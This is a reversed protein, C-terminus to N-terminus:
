SQIIAVGYPSLSLEGHRVTVGTLLDKGARVQRIQQTATSHNLLVLFKRRGASRAIMEVEAGAEAIPSLSLEGTLYRLLTAITDAQCYGGVYIVWGKGASRRTIAPAVGLLPDGDEWHALPQAGRLRLREVFNSMALTQGNALRAQRTEKERLTTWDEVEVGALKCFLGPLPMEVIHCNRDKLGSQAGLVLTGGAQVFKQVTAVLHKDVLKLHPLILLRYGRLDSDPWVMDASLHMRGAEATWRHSEFRGDGTYTNIRRENIDNDYDRMVAIARDVPADFLARPLKRIEAGLQRAEAIRRNNRDDQDLLGHWHQESGFPLTRWRFFSLEKAGHAISQWAWLRMEGPRPTRHLYAMQGGPGAQQELLGYPFSLSRAQILANAVETWHSCFLPYQDHSFYDLTKVFKRPDINGFLGNHTIQWQPNCKRLIRAQRAAFRIVCDSIFRSEDLLVSPNLYAATPHPLDIQEWQSYQQSWFRAGWAQNLRALTKYKDRLWQRFALTDSPAYSVDMHCNFENDLQWAIIQKENRYHEALATCIRDSLEYYKPSTYNFNRRSGHKMPIRDFNWRLVEPYKESVWAPACYTPTGMIVKVGHKRCLDITRDFLDFQFRGEEPEFYGWGGEGMRVADFGCEAIRQIDRRHRKQDWQDPYYCVGYVFQPWMMGREKAGSIQSSM